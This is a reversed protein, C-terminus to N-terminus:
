FNMSRGVNRIFKKDEGCSKDMTSDSVKTLMRWYYVRNGLKIYFIVGLQARFVGQSGGSNVERSWRGRWRSRREEGEEDRPM